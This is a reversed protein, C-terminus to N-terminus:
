SNFFIRNLKEITQERSNQLFAYQLQAKKIKENIIELDVKRNGLQEKTLSILAQIMFTEEATLELQIKIDNTDM